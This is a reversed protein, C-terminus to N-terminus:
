PFGRLGVAGLPAGATAMDADPAVATEGTLGIALIQVLWAKVENRDQTKKTRLATRGARNQRLADRGPTPIEPLYPM